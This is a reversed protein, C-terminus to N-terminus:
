TLKEFRGFTRNHYLLPSSAGISSSQVHGMFIRHTGADHWSDVKCVFGVSAGILVAGEDRMTWHDEIFGYAEGPTPIGAFVRATEAQSEALVNVIFHDNETIRRAIQNKRNVCILLLPPEVSVSTWASVTLGLLGDAGNTTVISVGMAAAAMADVFAQPKEPTASVFATNRADM